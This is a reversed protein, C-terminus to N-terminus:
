LIQPYKNLTSLISDIFVRYDNDKVLNKNYHEELPETILSSTRKIVDRKEHHPLVKYSKFSFYDKGSYVSDGIIFFLKLLEEENPNKFLKFLRIMNAAYLLGVREHYTMKTIDLLTSCNCDKKIGKVIRTLEYINGDAALINKLMNEKTSLIQTTLRRGNLFKNFELELNHSIFIDYIREIEYLFGALDDIKM